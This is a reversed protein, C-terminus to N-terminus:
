NTLGSPRGALDPDKFWPDEVYSAEGRSAGPLAPDSVTSAVHAATFPDAEQGDLREQLTTLLASMDALRAEEESRVSQMVARAAAIVRIMPEGQRGSLLNDNDLILRALYSRTNTNIKFGGKLLAELYQAAVFNNILSILVSILKDRSWRMSFLRFLAAAAKLEERSPRDQVRPLNPAYGGARPNGRSSM